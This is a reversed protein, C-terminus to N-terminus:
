TAKSFEDISAIIDKAWMPDFLFSAHDLGPMNVTDIGHHNLYTDVRTSDVINDLESLYVKTKEPMKTSSKYTHTHHTLNPTVYLATQFWHFHRSIYHSIYLETSAFYKVVGEAATKPTRYVFNSCVDKYHLMFCIPDLFIVGAVHKKMYKVAWATVASGLSHGVFLADNFGHRFLMQQMDRLTEQMTPVEEICHMSVFPLEIFFIPAGLALLHPIFASYCMLGAGIGHIFVIPKKNRDGDKFWYSVKQPRDDDQKMIPEYLQQPDMLSWVSSRSEPGYKKMGWVFHAVFGFLATLFQIVTYFILPRHHAHVPDFSIRYASVEENYGPELHVHFEEEFHDIMYNLEETASEDHLVNELPLAFFAWSLWEAVNERGIEEFTPHITSDYTMAFWETLWVEPNEINALCVAYLDSREKPSPAVSPLIRQMRKRTIHFFVYFILECGLWYHIFTDVSPEISFPRQGTAIYYVYYIFALPAVAALIVAGLYILGRTFSTDPIVKM